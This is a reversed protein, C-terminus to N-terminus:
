AAQKDGTVVAPFPHLGSEDRYTGKVLAGISVAIEAMGAVTDPDHEGFVPDFPRGRVTVAEGCNLISMRRDYETDHAENAKRLDDCFEVEAAHVAAARKALAQEIAANRIQNLDKM